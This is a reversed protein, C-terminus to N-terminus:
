WLSRALMSQSLTGSGKPAAISSGTRGTAVREAALMVDDNVLSADSRHRLARPCVEMIRAHQLQQDGCQWRNGTNRTPGALARRFQMANLVMVIPTVTYPQSVVADGHPNGSAADFRM